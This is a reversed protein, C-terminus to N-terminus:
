IGLESDLRTGKKVPPKAATGPAVLKGAGTVTPAASPTPTASASPAGTVVPATASATPASPSATPSPLPAPESSGAAAPEGAWPRLAVAGGVGGLLVLVGVVLWTPRLRRGPEPVTVAIASQALTPGTQMTGTHNSGPSSALSEPPKPIAGQSLRGCIRSLEWAAEKISPFRSDQNKAVGKAFWEDFGPPVCGVASPVLAPESCIALLLGGVTPDEFPRRGTLCEFAIVAFAWTDTRHDVAKRGSAQEPSMYYPTGLLAGTRTAAANAGATIQTQKAIGFDLVKAIEEDDARVLFVNDPKLDRHVIGNDHAKSLARAVQTLIAATADPTLKGAGLLRDALSEGELLEMAIYPTGNDVGYDLIQVVYPSRLTAAAQAERKFRALADPFQVISEDILKVAAPTGLEIHEARWVAGMGGQGLQSILRYRNDLIRGQV